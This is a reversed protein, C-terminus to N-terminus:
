DRSSQSGSSSCCCQLVFIVIIFIGYNYLSPGCEKDSKDWEVITMINMVFLPIATLAMICACSMALTMSISNHPANSQAVGHSIFALIFSVWFVCQLIGAVLM